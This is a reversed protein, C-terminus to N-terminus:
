NNLLNLLFTWEWGMSDVWAQEGASDREFSWQSKKESLRVQGNAINVATKADGDLYNYFPNGVDRERLKTKALDLTSNSIGLKNLILIQCGTLHMPYGRETFRAQLLLAESYGRYNESNSINFHEDVHAVLDNINSSKDCKGDTPHECLKDHTKYFNSFREWTDKDNCGISWAALGVTSDRSFENVTDEKYFLPGRWPRGTEDVSKPLASCFTKDGSLALLGNWLVADGDDQNKCAFPVDQGLCVPLNPKIAAVKEKFIDLETVDAPKPTTTGCSLLMLLSLYKRM